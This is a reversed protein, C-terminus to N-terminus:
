TQEERSGYSVCSNMRKIMEEKWAEKAETIFQKAINPYKENVFNDLWSWSVVKLTFREMDNM